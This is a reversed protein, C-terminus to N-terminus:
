KGVSSWVSGGGGTNLYFGEGEIRMEGVRSENFDNSNTLFLVINWRNLYKFRMCGDERKKKWVESLFLFSYSLSFYVGFHFRTSFWTRRVIVDLSLFFFARFFYEYTCRGVNNRKFFQNILVAHVIILSGVRSVRSRSTLASVVHDRMDNLFRNKWSRPHIEDFRKKKEKKRRM